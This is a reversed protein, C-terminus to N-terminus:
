LLVMQVSMKQTIKCYKLVRKLEGKYGPHDEYWQLSNECNKIINHNQELSSDTKNSYSISSNFIFFLFFCLLRIYVM